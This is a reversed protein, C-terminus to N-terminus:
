NAATVPRGPAQARAGAFAAELRELLGRYEGEGISAANFQLTKALQSLRIFGFTAASGKLSHAEREVTTRANECALHRLRDLRAETEDIFVALM